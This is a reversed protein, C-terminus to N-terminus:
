GKIVAIPRLRAVKKAIGANAVVDVVMSIDKYAVPAEEALGSWSGARVRIGESELKEKLAKGQVQRKAAHRSLRRGAGHCSSGFTEEMVRETGVLVFSATGMSGPILVPQGVARYRETIEANGPGFARTAGKRHVIVEKGSYTEKKAINHAVDYVIRLGGGNAGFVDKWAKRVEWTIMQRNSWAFNAAACMAKFYREGEPKALPAAALQNDPLSIGYRLMAGLMERIYDTAIQHGMGRSGSHILVTVQDNFLGLAKAAEEDYIEDIREVEVFHNGAGMTGLQDHGRKKAHESVMAPDAQELEGQSELFELDEKEGYGMEVLRRAGQKLVLDLDKGKLVLRGSRGVGSPVEKYIATALDDLHPEIEVFTKESALLRIGCNVDYGVAGPSIVGNPFDTAFVAGVPAGYGWHVDPMVLSYRQIGPLTAVNVAQELAKDSLIDDLMKESAYVRAPVRM